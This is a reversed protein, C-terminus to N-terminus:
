RQERGRPTDPPTAPRGGRGSQTRRRVNRSRQEEEHAEELGGVVVTMQMAVAMAVWLREARRPDQMTIHQWGWCGRTHDTDEDELWVRMRDWAREVEEGSLDTVVARAEQSGKEWGVLV